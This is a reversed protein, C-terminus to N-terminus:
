YKLSAPTCYVTHYLCFRFFDETNSICSRIAKTANRGSGVRVSQDPNGFIDVMITEESAISNEYAVKAPIHANDKRFFIDEV